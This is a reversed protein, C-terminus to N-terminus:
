WSSSAAGGPSASRARSTRLDPAVQAAAVHAQLEGPIAADEFVVIGQLIIVALAAIVVAVGSGIGIASSILAGSALGTGGFTAGLPLLAFPAIAGIITVGLSTFVLALAVGVGVLGAAAVATGFGIATDVAIAATEADTNLKNYAHATGYAIFEKSSPPRPGGSAQGQLSCAGGQSPYSFGLPPKYGTGFNACVNAQWRHFESLAFEAADLRKLRVQEAYANVITQEGTLRPDPKKIISLLDAYLFGRVSNRAFGMVNGRDTEPLLHAGLVTDVASKERPILADLAPPDLPSPGISDCRVIGQVIRGATGLLGCGGVVIPPGSPPPFPSPSGAWGGHLNCATPCAEGPSPGGLFQTTGDQCQCSQTTIPPLPIDIIEQAYGLPVLMVVALILGLVSIPNKFHGRLRARNQDDCDLDTLRKTKM